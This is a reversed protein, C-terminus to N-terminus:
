EDKTSEEKNEDSQKLYEEYSKDFQQILDLFVDDYIYPHLIPLMDKYNVYGYYKKKKMEVEMRDNKDPKTEPNPKFTFTLWVYGGEFDNVWFCENEEIKYEIHWGYNATISKHLIPDYVKIIRGVSDRKFYYREFYPEDNGKTFVLDFLAKKEYLPEEGFTDEGFQKTKAKDGAVADYDNMEAENFPFCIFGSVEGKNDYLYKVFTFIDTESPRGAVALPRGKSDTIDVRENTPARGITDRIVHGHNTKYEHYYERSLTQEVTYETVTEQEHGCSLMMVALLSSALLLLDSKM